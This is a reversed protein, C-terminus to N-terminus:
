INGCIHDVQYNFFFLNRAVAVVPPAVLHPLQQPTFNSSYVIFTRSRMTSAMILHCTSISLICNTNMGRWLAVLAIRIRLYICSFCWKFFFVIYEAKTSRLFAKSPTGWFTNHYTKLFRPSSSHTMRKTLAICLLVCNLTCTFPEELSGNLTITPTCWPDTSSGKNNM